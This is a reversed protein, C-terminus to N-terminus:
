KKKRNKGGPGGRSPRGAPGRRKKNSDARGTRGPGGPKGAGGAKRVGGSKGAGGPKGARSPGGARGKKARRRVQIRIPTGVFGFKERLQNVLFREYSFHFTTAVNTFFVFSPPAVGIQAAYLIRVHTRGPSVPPNAATM